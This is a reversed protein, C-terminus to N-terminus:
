PLDWALVLESDSVSTAGELFGQPCPECFELHYTWERGEPRIARITAKVWECPLGVLGIWLVNEKFAIREASVRAGRDSIDILRASSKLFRSVEDRRVIKAEVAATCRRPVARREVSTETPDVFPAVKGMINM